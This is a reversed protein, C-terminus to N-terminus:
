KKKQKIIEDKVEKDTTQLYRQTMLDSKHGIYEKINLVNMKKSNYLSKVKFHRLQHNTYHWLKGNDGKINYKKIIENIEKMVNTPSINNKGKYRPSFLLKNPNKDLNIPFYKNQHEEILKYLKQHIVVRHNNIKMKTINYVLYCINDEKELCNYSLQKIDMARLGTEVGIKFFLINDKYKVENINKLIENLVNEEIAFEIKDVMTNILDNSYILNPKIDITLLIYSLFQRIVIIKKNYEKVTNENKLLLIYDEINKRNLDIFNKNNINLIFHTIFKIKRYCNDHGNKNEQIKIFKILIDIKYREKIDKLQNICYKKSYTIIDEELQKNFNLM